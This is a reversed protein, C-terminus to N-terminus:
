NVSGLSEISIIQCDKADIQLKWERKWGDAQETTATYIDLVVGKHYLSAKLVTATDKTRSANQDIISQVADAAAESCKGAANANGTAIMLALMGLTIM